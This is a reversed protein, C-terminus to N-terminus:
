PLPTGDLATCTFNDWDISSVDFDPTWNMAKMHSQFQPELAIRYNRVYYALDEPWQWVGDTMANMSIHVNLAPNFVDTAYGACAAFCHERASLYSCIADCEEQTYTGKDRANFISPDFDCGTQLERFYGTRIVNM